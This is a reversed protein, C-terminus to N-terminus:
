AIIQHPARRRRNEVFTQAVSYNFYNMDDSGISLTVSDSNSFVRGDMQNTGSSFQPGVFPKPRHIHRGM